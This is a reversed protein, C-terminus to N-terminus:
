IYKKSIELIIPKGNALNRYRAMGEGCSNCVIVVNNMEIPVYASRDTMFHGNPCAADFYALREGRDNEPYFNIVFFLGGFNHLSAYGSGGNLPVLPTEIFESMKLKM